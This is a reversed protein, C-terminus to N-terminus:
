VHHDAGAEAPRAVCRPGSDGPQHRRRSDEHRQRQPTEPRARRGSFSHEDSYYHRVQGQILARSRRWIYDWSPPADHNRVFRSLRSRVTELYTTGLGDLADAAGRNYARVALDMDGGAEEIMLAMWIAVFRTAMWPNFYDEDALMADVRGAAHMDRLRERAFASAQALGVDLTGDRGISVARHDFWSETMVIAELTEAVVGPPLSYEAGVRYFGSWYAMMRRYAVIRIPQPVDDWVLPSMADWASPNNLVPAYSCLMADLSPERLTRPVQNWDALHMRRWMAAATTLEHVTTRWPARGGVGSITVDIPTMDAFLNTIDIAPPRPWSARVREAFASYTLWLEGGATAALLVGAALIFKM